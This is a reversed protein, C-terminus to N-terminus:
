LGLLGAVFITGFPLDKAKAAVGLDGMGNSQVSVGRLPDLSPNKRVIADSNKSGKYDSM